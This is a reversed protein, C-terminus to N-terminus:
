FQGGRGTRPVYEWHWPASRESASTADPTGKRESTPWVWGFNPANARFWRHQDTNWRNVGGGLDVALGWGHNSYGPTAARRGMSARLAVQQAFSRYGDTVTLNTGFHARYAKNLEELAAAAAPALQHRSWSLRQLQSPHLRGSQGPPGGVAGREAAQEQRGQIDEALERARQEEERGPVPQWTGRARRLQGAIDTPDDLIDKIFGIPARNQIGSDILYAGAAMLVLAIWEM